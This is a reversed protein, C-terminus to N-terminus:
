GEEPVALQRARSNAGVGEGWRPPRLPLPAQCSASTALAPCLQKGTSRTPCCGVLADLRPPPRRAQPIDFTYLDSFSQTPLLKLVGVM